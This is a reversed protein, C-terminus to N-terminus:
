CRALLVNGGVASSALTREGDDAADTLVAPPPSFSLASPPETNREPPLPVEGCKPPSPADGRPTVEMNEDSDGLSRIATLRRM